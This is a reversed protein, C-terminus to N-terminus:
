QFQSTYDSCQHHGTYLNYKVTEISEAEFPIPKYKDKCVQCDGVVCAFKHMSEGGISIPPCTMTKIAKSACGYKLEGNVMIDVEYKSMRLMLASTQRGDRMNKVESKLKKIINLRKLNLSEQVEIPVGCSVCCCMDKFRKTMRVIWNPWNRRMATESM